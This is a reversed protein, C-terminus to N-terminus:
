AGEKGKAEKPPRVFTKQRELGERRKRQRREEKTEEKQIQVEGMGVIAQQLVELKRFNERFRDESLRTIVELYEKSVMSVLREGGLYGIPVDLRISIRIGVINNSGIGLERFGCGMAASYLRSATAANRCKVHLILPEFKFLISRESTAPLGYEFPVQEWWKPLHEPDHTVFLWRGENGKAGIQEAHAKNGELFVSVRGSCSLTTVMDPHANIVGMIPLCREDITGKPLLDTDSSAIEALIAGKKQDFPDLM